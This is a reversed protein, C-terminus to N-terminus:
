FWRDWRRLPRAFLEKCVPWPAERAWPGPSQGSAWPPLSPNSSATYLFMCAQLSSAWVVRVAHPGFPIFLITILWRSFNNTVFSAAVIKLSSSICCGAAFIITIAEWMCSCSTPSPVFKTRTKAPARRSNASSSRLSPRDTESTM